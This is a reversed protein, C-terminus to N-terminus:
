YLCLLGTVRVEVTNDSAGTNRDSDITNDLAQVFGADDCISRPLEKVFSKGVRGVSQRTNTEGVDVVKFGQGSHCLTRDLTEVVVSNCM